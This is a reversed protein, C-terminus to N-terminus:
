EIHAVAKGGGGYGQNQNAQNNLKDRLDNLM